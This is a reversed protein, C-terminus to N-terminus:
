AFNGEKWSNQKPRKSLRLPLLFIGALSDQDAAFARHMEVLQECITAYVAIQRRLVEVQEDTMVKVCLVGEAVRDGEGREEGIESSRTGDGGSDSAERRVM